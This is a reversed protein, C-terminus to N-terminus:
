CGFQHNLISQSSSNCQTACILSPSFSASPPSYCSSEFVVLLVSVGLHLCSLFFLVAVRLSFFGFLGNGKNRKPFCFSDNSLCKWFVIISSKLIQAFHGKLLHHINCVRGTIWFDDLSINSGCKPTIKWDKSLSPSAGSGGLTREHRQLTPLM